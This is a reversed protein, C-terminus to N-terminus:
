QKEKKPRSRLIDEVLDPTYSPRRACLADIILEEDARRKSRGLRRLTNAKLATKSIDRIQPFLTEHALVAAARDTLDPLIQRALQAVLDVGVDGRMVRTEDARSYVREYTQSDNREMRTINDMMVPHGVFAIACGTQEQIDCAFDFIDFGCRQGENVILFRPKDILQQIVGATMRELYSYTIQKTKALKARTVALFGQLSRMGATTMILIDHDPDQRAFHDAAFTKGLGPDGHILAFGKEAKCTRLTDQVLTYSPFPVPDLVVQVEEAEEERDLFAAIAQAVALNNGEKYNRCLFRNIAARKYKTGNEIDRQGRGPAAKLWALAREITNDIFEQQKPTYQRSSERPLSVVKSDAATQESM